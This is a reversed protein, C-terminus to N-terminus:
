TTGWRVPARDIEGGTQLTQHLAGPLSDLYANPLGNASVAIVLFIEAQSSAM